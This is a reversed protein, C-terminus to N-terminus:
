PMNFGLYLGRTGALSMSEKWEEERGQAQAAGLRSRLFGCCGDVVAFGFDLDVDLYILIAPTAPSM